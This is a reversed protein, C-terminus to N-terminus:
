KAALERFTETLYMVAQSTVDARVQNDNAHTNMGWVPFPMSIRNVTGDAQKMYLDEGKLIKTAIMGHHGGGRVMLDNAFPVVALSKCIMEDAEEKKGARMLVIHRKLIVNILWAYVEAFERLWDDEKESVITKMKESTLKNRMEHIMPGRFGTEIGSEVDAVLNVILHKAFNSVHHILDEEDLAELDLAVRFQGKTMRTMRKGDEFPEVGAEVLREKMWDKMSLNNLMFEVAMM